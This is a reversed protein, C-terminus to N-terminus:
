WILPDSIRTWKPKFLYRIGDGAGDLTAGKVLLTFLLVYRLTVTLFTIKTSWKLGRWMSFYIILYTVTTAIAVRPVLDGGKEFDESQNLVQIHFYDPNWILTNNQQSQLSVTWPLPNRFSDYFYIIVWVVLTIYYWDTFISVLLQCLGFGWLRGNVISFRQNIPCKILQGFSIELFYTPIALTFLFILYPILFVAGGDRLVLYPFRWVNGYGVVYGICYFWFEV